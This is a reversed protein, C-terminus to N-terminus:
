RSAAAPGSAMKPCRSRPGTRGAAPGPDRQKRRHEREAAPVGERLVIPLRRVAPELPEIADEDDLGVAAEDLHDVVLHAYACQGADGLDHLPSQM